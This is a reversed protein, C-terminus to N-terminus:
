HDTECIALCLAFHRFLFKSEIGEMEQTRLVPHQTLTSCAKWDQMSPRYVRKWLAAAILVVLGIIMGILRGKNAKEPM